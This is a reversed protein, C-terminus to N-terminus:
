LYFPCILKGLPLYNTIKCKAILIVPAHLGGNECPLSVNSLSMYAKHEFVNLLHQEKLLYIFGFKILLILSALFLYPQNSYFNIIHEPYENPRCIYFLYSLCIERCSNIVINFLFFPIMHCEQISNSKWLLTANFQTTELALFHSCSIM